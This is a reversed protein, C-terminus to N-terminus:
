ASSRNNIFSQLFMSVEKNLKLDKLYPAYDKCIYFISRKIASNISSKMKSNFDDATRKNLSPLRNLKEVSLKLEVLNSIIVSLDKQVIGYVDESLAATSLNSLCQVTWIIIQGNALCYQINVEPLEGFIFDFGLKSKLISCFNNLKEMWLKLWDDKRESILQLSHNQSINIINLSDPERYSMNRINRFRKFETPTKSILDSFKREEKKPKCDNELLMSTSKNLTQTFETTIKLLNQILNNWNHPHGGPQSLTFIEKRRNLCWCSLTFADLCALHQIIPINNMGIAQPLTLDDKNISDIPFYVPQTLFLEFFLRMTSMKIYYLTSLAWSYIYVSINVDKKVEWSLSESIYDRIRSGIIWYLIFFYITPLISDSKSKKILPLLRSKFQSLKHQYIVPFLIKKDSTHIKIHYFFGIWLGCIVLYFNGEVLCTKHSKCIETLSSYIGNGLTLYLWSVLGGAIVHLGLLAFNRLSFISIFKLFRSSTFSSTLVYDKACIISQAFIITMFPILYIWTTLSTATKLTVGVWKLPHFIDFNVLFLFLLLTVLQFLVSNIVSYSLKRLLIAKCGANNKVTLNPDM